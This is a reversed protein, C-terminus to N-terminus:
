PLWPSNKRLRLRLRLRNTDRRSKVSTPASSALRLVLIQAADPETGVLARFQSQLTALEDSFTNSLEKFEEPTRAFLFVPSVPQVALGRQQATIWVAEMASGGRVFDTLEHGTVSVVALGSSAQVRDRTDDGLASGANWAA